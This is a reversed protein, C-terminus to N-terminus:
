EPKTPDLDLATQLAEVSSQYQELKLYSYGLMIWADRYDYKKRIISKLLEVAPVYFNEKILDKSLLAQQYTEQGSQTSSFENYSDIFNQIKASLIANNSKNKAERFANISDDYQKQLSLILGKYFLTEGDSITLHNILDAAINIHNAKILTKLYLNFYSVNSNEKDFAQKAFQEAKANDGNTDHILAIQYDPEGKNTKFNAAKVYEEIALKDLNKEHLLKAKNIAKEYNDATHIKNNSDDYKITQINDQSKQFFHEHILQTIGLTRVLIVCFITIIAVSVAYQIYHLIKNSM